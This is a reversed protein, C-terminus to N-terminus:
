SEEKGESKKVAIWTDIEDAHNSITACGKPIYRSQKRCYEIWAQKPEQIHSIQLRAHVLLDPMVELLWTMVSYRTNLRIIGHLHMRPVACVNEGIPESIEIRFWYDYHCQQKNQMLRSLKQSYFQYFEMIRASASQKLHEGQLYDDPKITVALIDGDNYKIKEDYM